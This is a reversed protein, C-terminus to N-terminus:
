INILIRVAFENTFRRKVHWAESETLNEKDSEELKDLKM